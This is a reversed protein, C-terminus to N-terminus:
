LLAIWFRSANVCLPSLSLSHTLAAFSFHFCWTLWKSFIAEIEM